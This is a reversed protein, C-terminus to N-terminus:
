PNPNESPAEAVEPAPTEAAPTEAAPTEAVQQEPPPPETPKQETSQQQQQEQAPEQVHKVEDEDAMALVGVFILPMWIFMVFSLELRNATQCLLAIKRKCVRQVPGYNLKAGHM